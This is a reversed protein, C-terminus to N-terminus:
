SSLRKEAPSKGETWRIRALKYLSTQQTKKKVQKRKEGQKKKLKLEGSAERQDEVIQRSGMRAGGGKKGKKQALSPSGTLVFSGELITRTGRVCLQVAEGGLRFRTFNWGPKTDGWNKEAKKKRGGGGQERDESRIRYKLLITRLRRTKECSAGDGRRAGSLCWDEGQQKGGM